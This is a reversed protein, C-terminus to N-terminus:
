PTRNLWVRIAGDKDALSRGSDEFMMLIDPRGDGDFDAVTLDYATNEPVEWGEVVADSFGGRGDGMLIGAVRPRTRSYAVDINGDGDFDAAAMANMSHRDAWTVIRERVSEDGSIAVYDIGAVERFEPHEVELPHVEAPFTRAYSVLAEDGPRARDFDGVALAGIYSYWPFFGRGFVEWGTGSGDGLWVVDTGHYYISSTIIDVNGDGDLDGLKMWDGGLLRGPEGVEFQKWSRARGENFFIRLKSGQISTPSLPTPGETLAVLDLDGDGDMDAVNVRRTPFSQKPLGGSSETFNGKSDGLWVALGNLHVGFVIDQHGDQDVDAVVASGYDLRRPYRAEAWGRWGGRGDGLFIAPVGSPTGREPPAVIDLHGDGNLDGVGPSNRWSGDQPLGSSSEVFRIVETSEPPSVRVFEKKLTEFEEIAEPSLDRLHYVDPDYQFPDRTERVRRFVWVYEENDDYIEGAASVHQFPRLVGVPNARFVATKKDFKEIKWAAGHREWIREPDPDFGPDEDLGLKELREARTMSAKYEAWEARALAEADNSSLPLDRSVEAAPDTATHSCGIATFVILVAPIVLNHPRFMKLFCEM